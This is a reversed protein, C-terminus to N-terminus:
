LEIYDVKSLMELYEEPINRDNNTSFRMLIGDEEGFLYKAIGIAKFENKKLLMLMPLKTENVWADISSNYINNLDTRFMDAILYTAIKKRRKKPNVTLNIIQYYKENVSYFNYAEVKNNVEAVKSSVNEDFFLNTLTDIDWPHQYSKNELDLVRDVDTDVMQRVSIDIKAVM